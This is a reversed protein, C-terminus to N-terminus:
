PKRPKPKKFKKVRKFKIDLFKLSKENLNIKYITSIAYKELKRNSAEPLKFIILNNDNDLTLWKGSHQPYSWLPYFPAKTHTPLFIKPMYEHDIWI